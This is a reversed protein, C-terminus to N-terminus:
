KQQHAQARCKRDALDLLEKTTTVDASVTVNSKKAEAVEFLKRALPNPRNTARARYTLQSRSSMTIAPNAPHLSLQLSPHSSNSPSVWSFCIGCILQECASLVEFGIWALITWTGRGRVRGCRPIKEVGCHTEAVRPQHMILLLSTMM